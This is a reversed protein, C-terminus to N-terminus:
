KEFHGGDATMLKKYAHKSWGKLANPPATTRYYALKLM